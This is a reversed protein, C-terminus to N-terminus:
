VIFPIAKWNQIDDKKTDKKSRIAM